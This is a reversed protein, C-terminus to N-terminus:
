KMFRPKSILVLSIFFQSIKDEPANSLAQNENSKWARSKFSGTYGAQLGISNEPHKLSKVSFGLGFRYVFFSNNFRVSSISNQVTPSQLVDNFPVQSNDKYFIAQYGQFGLGALPYLMVRDSAIVDYGLDANVGIYRITSSKEDKDGSMSSGITVGGASIVRKREKLWGLGLTATHEKLQKFQPLGAVRSNLGDFKQFSAGISRTIGPMVSDKMFHQANVSLGIGVALFSIIFKM